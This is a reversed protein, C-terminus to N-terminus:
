SRGIELAIGAMDKTARVATANAEFSRSASIMNVMEEVINVNPLRIYGNRLFDLLKDLFDLDVRDLDTYIMEVWDAKVADSVDRYEALLAPDMGLHLSRKLADLQRGVDEPWAEEAVEMNLLKEWREEIQMRLWNEGVEPPYWEVKRNTEILLDKFATTRIYWSRRAYYVLPSSCRWCFPYSHTVEGSRYLIGRADLDAIIEPDADKIFRGAWPTIDDTFRGQENVPQIFPLGEAVGAQYDDEGFAPATHVIGTGETLTVFDAGIVRFAGERDKFFPFCPEYRRGILEEGKMRGLIEVEGELVGALAEALILEDGNNRVRVYDHEPGVALAVNSILTWPTTTWVLFYADDDIIKLKIFISPDSVDQYGQSVEHSSLSTGCRPCYPVVKHGEFLMDQDWFQKLIWWVSEIYENTCTVYPDDLDLWFGLKRTFEHWEDLYTFVSTRCEANFAAVGYKEIQDKGDLGLKGEVEIEVPLGHTDWGAKRVVRQGRMTRYRCVIDKITRSMAHHVGPRGNATPPGEYFVFHNDAPREEISRRFIDHAEWYRLVEEEGGIADHQPRLDAYRKTGPKKVEM